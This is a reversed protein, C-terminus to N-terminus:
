NTIVDVEAYGVDNSRETNRLARLKIYRGKAPAFKKTQWMEHLEAQYPRPRYFRPFQNQTM